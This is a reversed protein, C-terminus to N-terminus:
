VRESGRGKIYTIFVLIAGMEIRIYVYYTNRNTTKKM